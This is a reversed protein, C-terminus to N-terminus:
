WWPEKGCCSPTTQSRSRFASRSPGERMKEAAERSPKGRYSGGKWNDRCCVITLINMAAREPRESHYYPADEPPRLRTALAHCHYKSWGCRERLTPITREILTTMGLPPCATASRNALGPPGRFGRSTQARLTRANGPRKPLQVIVFLKLDHAPGSVGRATLSHSLTERLLRQFRLASTAISRHKFKSPSFQGRDLIAVRHHASGQSPRKRSMGCIVFSNQALDRITLCSSLACPPGEV